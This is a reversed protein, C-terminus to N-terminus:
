SGTPEQGTATRWAAVSAFRAGDWLVLFGGVGSIYTNREFRLRDSGGAADVLAAGGRAVLVNDHVEATDVPDTIRVASRVAGPAADVSVTNLYVDTDKVGTGAAPGSLELGGGGRRGDGTSVNRNVTNGETPRFGAPQHV